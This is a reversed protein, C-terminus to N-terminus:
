GCFLRTHVQRVVHDQLDCFTEQGVDHREIFGFLSFFDRPPQFGLFTGSFQVFLFSGSVPDPSFVIPALASRDDKKIHLVFEPLFCVRVPGKNRVPESKTTNTVRAPISGVGEGHSPSTKAAQSHPRYRQQRARPLSECIIACASRNTLLKQLLKKAKKASKETGRKSTKLLDRACTEFM